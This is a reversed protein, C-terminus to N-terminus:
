ARVGYRIDAWLEDSWRLGLSSRMEEKHVPVSGLAIRANRGAEAPSQGARILDATLSELHYAFEAEMEKELRSRQTIARFWSRPQSFARILFGRFSM